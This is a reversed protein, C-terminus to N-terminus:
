WPRSSGPLPNLFGLRGRGSYERTHFRPYRGAGYCYLEDDSSSDDSSSDDHRGRGRPSGPPLFPRVEQAPPLPPVFPGMATLAMEELEAINVEKRPNLKTEGKEIRGVVNEWAASYLKDFISKLGEDYARKAIILDKQYQQQANPEGGESETVPIRRQHRAPSDFSVGITSARTEERKVKALADAFPVGESYAYLKAREARALNLKSNRKPSGVPFEEAEQLYQLEKQAAEEARAQKQEPSRASAAAKDREGKSPGTIRRIEDFLKEERQRDRQKIRERQEKLKSISEKM